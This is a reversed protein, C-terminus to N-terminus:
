KTLNSTSNKKALKKPIGQMKGLYGTDVVRTRKNEPYSMKLTSSNTIPMKNKTLKVAKKVDQRATPTAVKKVPSKSMKKNM